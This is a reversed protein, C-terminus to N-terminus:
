SRCILRTLMSRSSSRTGATRSIPPAHAAPRTSRGIRDLLWDAESTDISGTELLDLVLRQDTQNSM